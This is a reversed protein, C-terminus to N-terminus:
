STKHSKQSGELPRRLGLELCMRMLEELDRLGEGVVM